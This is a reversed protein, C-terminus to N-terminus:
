GAGKRLESLGYKEVLADFRLDDATKGEPLKIIGTLKELASGPPAKVAARQEQSVLTRIVRSFTASVSTKHKRAYRKALRVVEPNVTLTLKTTAM